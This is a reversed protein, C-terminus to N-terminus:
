SFPCQITKLNKIIAKMDELAEMAVDSQLLALDMEWLVKELHSEMIVAGSEREEPRFTQYDARDKQLSVEEPRWFFGLMKQNLKDFQPYKFVDFRQTNPDAGFFMPEKKWNIQDRNFVTM